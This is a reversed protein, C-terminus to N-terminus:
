FTPVLNAKEIGEVPFLYENDAVLMIIEDGDIAQLRGKFNKRNEYPFRLKVAIEEGIYREYHALNYLPRDMGPSSVELTYEGRILDEVDLVSAAQRSVRECDEIGVGDPERDIYVRLLKRKTGSHLEVGWLECGLSAVVPQLLELIARDGVSM